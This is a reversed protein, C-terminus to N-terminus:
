SAKPKRATIVFLVGLVIAAFVIGLWPIWPYRETIRSEVKDCADGVGDGDADEQYTNPENPCNDLSNIVGDRDFDDCVDGRGNKDEDLQDANAVSVCNDRIDAVGDRDSDAIIYKPSEQATTSALRLVGEDDYLNGSEGVPPYSPRDPDFYVRYSQGPQALFRIVRTTDRAEDETILRMESVRLPQSYELDIMWQDSTTKPFRVSSEEMKVKSALVVEEGNPSFTLITISKPLAVYQDLVLTLGTAVVPGSANLTIRTAGVEGDPLYFDTYSNFDNDIMYYAYGVDAAAEASILSDRHTPAQIFLYPEFRNANPNFVAFQLRDIQGSPVPLEVVTPVTIPINSIEALQRYAAIISDVTANDLDQSRAPVVMLGCITLALLLLRLKTM